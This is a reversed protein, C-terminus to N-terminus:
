DVTDTRSLLLQVVPKCCHLMGVQLPTLGNENKIDVNAGHQLLLEAYGGPRRAPIHLRAPVHLRAAVHLPTSGERGRVDTKAGSKLLLAILAPRRAWVARHLPTRGQSDTANVDARSAILVRACEVQGHYTALHLPTEANANRSDVDVGHTLLQTLSRSSGDGALFHIPKSGGALANVNAQNALLLRAIRSDSALHLPTIGFGDQANVDAGLRLLAKVAGYQREEVAWHLPTRKDFELDRTNVTGDIESELRLICDVQGLISASFIDLEAGADLLQATGQGDAAAFYLATHGNATQVNIDVKAGILVKVCEEHGRGAADHIPFEGTGSDPLPANLDAGHSHLLKLYKPLNHKVAIAVGYRPDAGARLLEKTVGEHNSFVADLLALAGLRKIDTGRDILLKVTKVKGNASAARLLSTNRGSVPIRIDFVQNILKPQDRLVAELQMLQDLYAMALPNSKTSHESLLAVTEPVHRAIASYLVPVNGGDVVDTSAGHNLLLRVLDPRGMWVAIRLPCRSYVSFKNPDAGRELLYGILEPSAAHKSLAIQLVTPDTSPNLSAGAEALLRAVELHGNRVAFHLPTKGFQDPKNIDAGANILLRACANHGVGAAAQLLTTGWRMPQARRVGDVLEPRKKLLGRLMAEEGCVAAYYADDFANGSTPVVLNAGVACRGLFLTLAVAGAKVVSQSSIM